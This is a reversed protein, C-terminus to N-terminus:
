TPSTSTRSKSCPWRNVGGAPTSQQHCRRRFQHLHALHDAPGPLRRAPDAVGVDRDAPRRLQKGMDAHHGVFHHAPDGVGLFALGAEAGIAGAAAGIYGAVVLSTMNPMIERFVIQPMSDGAFISATIYDRERLTIMQSRKIRAGWAWGTIGIVVIVTTLGKVPSYAAIVVMLPLTPIM